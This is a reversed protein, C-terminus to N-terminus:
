GGLFRETGRHGANCLRRPVERPRSVAATGAVPDAAIGVGDNGVPCPYLSHDVRLFTAAVAMSAAVMRTVAGRGWASGVLTTGSVLTISGNALIHGELTSTTGLTVNGSVQWFVNAGGNNTQVSSSDGTVTDGKIQFVFLANPDHLNDLMLTGALLDALTQSTDVSYVGPLLTLGGLGSYSAISTLGAADGYANTLDLLPNGFQTLGNGTYIGGNVRAAGM